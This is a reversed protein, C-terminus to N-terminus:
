VLRHYSMSSQIAYMEICADLEKEDRLSRFAESSAEDRKEVGGRSDGTVGRVSGSTPMDGTDGDHM